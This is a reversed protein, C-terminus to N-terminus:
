KQRLRRVWKNNPNQSKCDPFSYCQPTLFSHLHTPPSIVHDTLHLHALQQIWIMLSSVAVDRFNNGTTRANCSGGLSQLILNSSCNNGDKHLFFFLWKVRQYQQAAVAAELFVGEKGRTRIPSKQSKTKSPKPNTQKNNPHHHHKNTQQNTKGGRCLTQSM